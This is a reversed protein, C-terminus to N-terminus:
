VIEYGLISFYYHKVQRFEMTFAGLYAVISASLLVDGVINDYTETLDKSVKSFLWLNNSLISSLSSRPTLDNLRERFPRPNSISVVKLGTLHLSLLSYAMKKTTRPSLCFSDRRAIVDFSWPRLSEILRALWLAMQPECVNFLVRDLFYNALWSDIM